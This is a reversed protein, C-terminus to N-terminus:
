KSKQFNLLEEYVNDSNNRIYKSKRFLNKNILSYNKFLFGM